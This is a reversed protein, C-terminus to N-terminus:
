AQEGEAPYLPLVNVPAIGLQLPMHGAWKEKPLRWWVNESNETQGEYRFRVVWEFPEEMDEEFRVPFANRTEKPNFYHARIAVGNLDDRLPLETELRIGWEPVFLEHEGTKKAPAMNKCGTLVAAVRSQPDAFLRKTDRPQYLLGRDMIAIRDCMHYAEDRSHTVMLVDGSFDGLTKLLELQLRMRLHSDLASFPEDLMLLKPRSVMIRALAVRQQQGGSLQHPKHHVLEELQFLRIIEDCAARREAGNRQAHLGCLINQRVTMNPFLAYNQFLYGVHRDQPKLNIHRQSDFLTVGNLVIRGRDPKEIGAICKLTFSKGCGSAGLLGTVGGDSEFKSRLVFHGLEREIDVQLSM